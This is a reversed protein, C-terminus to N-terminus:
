LGQEKEIQKIWEVTEKRVTRPDKNEHGLKIQFYKKRVFGNSKAIIFNPFIGIFNNYERVTGDYNSIIRNQEEIDNLILSFKDKNEFELDKNNLYQSFTALFYKNLLYKKYVFEESCQKVKNDDLNLKLFLKLSDSNNFNYINLLESLRKNKINEKAIYSIWIRDTEISKTKLDRITFSKYIYFLVTLILFFSLIVSTCGLFFKKM